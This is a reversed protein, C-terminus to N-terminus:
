SIIKEQEKCHAQLKCISEDAQTKAQNLHQREKEFLQKYVNLNSNQILNRKKANLQKMLAEVSTYAFERIDVYKALFRKNEENCEALRTEM